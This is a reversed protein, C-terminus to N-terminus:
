FIRLEIPMNARVPVWGDIRRPAKKQRHLFSLPIFIICRKRMNAHTNEKVRGRPQVLPVSGRRM